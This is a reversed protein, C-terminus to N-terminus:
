RSQPRPTKLIDQHPRFTVGLALALEHDRPILKQFNGRLYDPPQTVGLLLALANDIERCKATNLIIDNASIGPLGRKGEREQATFESPFLFSVGVRLYPKEDTNESSYLNVHAILNRVRKAKRFKSNIRSVCDIVFKEFQKQGQNADLRSKHRIYFLKEMAEFKRDFNSTTEILLGPITPDDHGSLHLLIMVIRNDISTYALINEGIAEHIERRLQTFKEARPDPIDASPRKSSM